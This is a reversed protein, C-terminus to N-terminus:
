FDLTTLFREFLALDETYTRSDALFTILVAQGRRIVLIDRGEVVVPLSEQFPNPENYVFAYDRVTATEENPLITTGTSLVRYNSLTQLRSLSLDHLVNIPTMGDAFPYVEIQVTTKFGDRSTDQARFVFNEDNEDITDILWNRPYNVRIGAERDIYENTSYLIGERLNFGIFIAVACFALTLYHGWRQNRTLTDDSGFIDFFRLM